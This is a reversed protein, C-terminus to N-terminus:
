LLKLGGTIKDIEDISAPGIAACTLTPVGGFETHGADTILTVHIGAARAQEAIELLRAGSEIGVCICTKGSGLWENVEENGEGLDASLMNLTALVAAHCGQAVMKGKRMNLDTRMIVVQKHNM